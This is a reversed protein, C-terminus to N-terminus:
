KRSLNNKEKELQQIQKKNMLVSLLFFFLNLYMMSGEVRMESKLLMFIQDSPTAALLKKVVEDSRFVITVDTKEPINGQM